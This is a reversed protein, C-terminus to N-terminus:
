AGYFNQIKKNGGCRIDNDDFSIMQEGLYSKLLVKAYYIGISKPRTNDPLM